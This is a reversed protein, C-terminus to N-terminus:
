STEADEASDEADTQASTAVIIQVEHLRYTDVAMQLTAMKHLGTADTEVSIITGILIGEPFSDGLGSTVVSDGPQVDADLSINIMRLQPDLSGQGRVIGLSGSSVVRGGVGSLVDQLLMLESTNSSTQVIRGVLGRPTRVPMDVRVGDRDGANLGYRSSWISPRSVIRATIFEVQENVNKYDLLEELRQVKDQIASYDLTIEILLDLEQKLRINEQRLTGLEQIDAIAERLWTFSQQLQNQLPAILDRAGNQLFVLLQQRNFLLNTWSLMLLALFIVTLFVITRRWNQFFM